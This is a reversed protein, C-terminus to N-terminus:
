SFYKASENWINFLGKTKKIQEPNELSKVSAVLEGKDNNSNWNWYYLIVFKAALVKESDTEKMGNIQSGDKATGYLNLEAPANALIQKYPKNDGNWWRYGGFTLNIWRDRVQNLAFIEVSDQYSSFQPFVRDKVSDVWCFAEDDSYLFFMNHYHHHNSLQNTQSFCRDQRDFPGNNM